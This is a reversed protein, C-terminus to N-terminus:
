LCETYGYCSALYTAQIGQNSRAHVDARAAILVKLCELHGNHSAIMVPTFGQHTRGEMDVGHDILVQVCGVSGKSAACHLSTLGAPNRFLNVDVEPHKGLFPTLEETKDVESCCLNYVQESLDM